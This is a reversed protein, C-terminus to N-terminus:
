WALSQFSKNIADPQDVQCMSTDSECGHDIGLRGALVIRLGRDWFDM